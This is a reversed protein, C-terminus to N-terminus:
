EKIVQEIANVIRKVRLYEESENSNVMYTSYKVLFYPSLYGKKVFDFAICSGDSNIDFFNQIKRLNTKTGVDIIFERDKALRKDTFLSSVKDITELKWTYPNTLYEEDVISNVLIYLLFQKVEFHKNLHLTYIKDFVAKHSFKFNPHIFETIIKKVKKGEAVRKVNRYIICFSESKM